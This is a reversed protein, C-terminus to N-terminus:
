IRRRKPMPAEAQYEGYEAAVRGLPTLVYYWLFQEPERPKKPPVKETVSRAILGAAVLDDLFTGDKTLRTFWFKRIERGTLRGERAIARIAKWQDLTLYQTRM